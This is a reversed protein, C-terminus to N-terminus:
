TEKVLLRSKGQKEARTGFLVNNCSCSDVVMLATHENGEQDVYGVEVFPFWNGGEVRMMQVRM